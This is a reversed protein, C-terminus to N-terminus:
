HTHSRAPPKKMVLGLALFYFIKGYIERPIFTGGGAYLFTMATLGGGLFTLTKIRIQQYHGTLWDYVRRQEEIATHLISAEVSSQGNM